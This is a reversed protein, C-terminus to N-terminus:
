SKGQTRDDATTMTQQPIPKTGNPAEKSKLQTLGSMELSVTDYLYCPM